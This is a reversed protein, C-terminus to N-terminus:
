ARRKKISERAQRIHEPEALEYEHKWDAEISLQIISFIALEIGDLQPETGRFAWELVSMLVRDFAELPLTQMAEWYERRFLFKDHHPNEEAHPNIKTTM